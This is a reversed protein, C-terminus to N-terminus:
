DAQGGAILRGQRTSLSIPLLVSTPMAAMGVDRWLNTAQKGSQM